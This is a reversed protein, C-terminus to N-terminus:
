GRGGISQGGRGPQGSEQLVARRGTDVGLVSGGRAVWSLLLKRWGFRRVFVPCAPRFWVATFPVCRAPHTRPPLAARGSLSAVQAFAHVM